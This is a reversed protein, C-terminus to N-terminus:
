RRSWPARSSRARRPQHERAGLGAAHAALDAATVIGRTADVLRMHLSLVDCSSFFAAKSEAVAHGDARARARSPESAWVLVPMGFARGYEAVM